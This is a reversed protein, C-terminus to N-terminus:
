LSVQGGESTAAFKRMAGRSDAFTTMSWGALRKVASELERSSIAGIRAVRWSFATRATTAIKAQRHEGESALHSPLCHSYSSKHFCTRRKHTLHLFLPFLDFTNPEETYSPRQIQVPRACSLSSPTCKTGVSCRVVPVNQVLRASAYEINAVPVM